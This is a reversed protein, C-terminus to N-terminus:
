SDVDSTSSSRYLGSHSRVHQVSRDHEDVSVAQPVLVVPAVDAVLEMAALDVLDVLAADAAERDVPAVDAEALDVPAVVAEALDVARWSRRRRWTWRRRRGGAGSRGEGGPGGLREGAGPGGEGGPGGLREGAGPRGPGGGPWGGAAAGKDPGGDPPMKAATGRQLKDGIKRMESNDEEEVDPLDMLSLHSRLNLVLEDGQNVGGIISAMTDNTAGIEVPLTEFKDGRKALCYMEGGHEYLGQIPIQLADSLQEVFVQVEATMGTRINEPPDIIEIFTAYEKISSSFFSSPEAYRNVKKVRGTLKMGPIADVAIRVPMGEEILTIRSENIKVNVQMQTPDPLRIIAQRERVSAGPEVVFEASGGRSSYKNAHVVIGDSPAYMVCYKLQMEVDELEQQEEMLESQFAALKAQASEIDSEFGVMMKRKTLEQLVRLRGQAADVKTQANFVKFEDAKLQLANQLGKAVLRQSSDKALTAQTLEQNAVAMESLIAAEETMYVGELYERMAIKAQEVLAEASKVNAEATIVKIRSDKLELEITTSDLEVLKDGKTVRTGEDIVWLIPIGSYGRSKVECIVEINSSSEIEGQELVIHDFPGRTVTQTILDGEDIGDGDGYIFNYGIAGLLGVLILCVLLGGLFGGHRRRPHDIRLSRKM